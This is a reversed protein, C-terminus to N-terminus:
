LYPFVRFGAHTVFTTKTVWICWYASESKTHRPKLIYYYSIDNPMHAYLNVDKASSLVRILGTESVRTFSLWLECPFKVGKFRFISNRILTRVKSRFWGLIVISITLLLHSFSVIKMPVGIKHLESARVIDASASFALLCYIILSTVSYFFSITPHPKGVPYEIVGIGFIWTVIQIPLVPSTIKLDPTKMGNKPELM